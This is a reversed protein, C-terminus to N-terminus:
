EERSDDIMKQLADIEEPKLKKRRTFATLFMPLSGGFAEEVFSESCRAYFEARTVRSTVTGDTNQFIGRECLRRLVTYTTSKKWNLERECLKVLEGSPIPENKWILDSFRAEIPALNFEQM